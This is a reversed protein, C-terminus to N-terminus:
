DASSATSSPTSPAPASAKPAESPKSESKTDSKTESKSDAKAETKSDSKAESSSESRSESGEVLNRKKDKDGKFDTEYWGGGKLRFSAATVARKLQSAGCSPCDTPDPDSMRQLQDFRKGCSACEYEYIPM